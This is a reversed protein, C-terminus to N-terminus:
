LESVVSSSLCGEGSAMFSSLATVYRMCLQILAEVIPWRVPRVCLTRLTGLVKCWCLREGEEECKGREGKGEDLGSFVFFATM